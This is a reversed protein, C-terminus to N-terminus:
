DGLLRDVDAHDTLLSRMRDVTDADRTRGSHVVDEAREVTSITDGGVLLVPVGKREATGLVAGSPDHGGTLILCRVGPAELAATHIESRDGGTIVAADTTRRFHALATNAGMAGVVFREVYGDTGAETLVRAGIESALDAVTVGALRRDRPVIGFVPLDRGELFPVADDVVEDFTADAVGNFVVGALRDGLRDAAALVDDLDGTRDYDAVLLVRADLLEAVEPDTLDVIGGTTVTAGGEVFVRDRDAAVREFAARVEKRIADPDERGRVAERVFTPSYVVPEMDEVPDDLDLVEAALLPDSDLTKGVHSELRTGVPKMYGVDADQERALTALALTVATKGTSEHISSVLTTDTM